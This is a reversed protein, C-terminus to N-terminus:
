HGMAMEPAPTPALEPAQGAQATRGPPQRRNGPRVVDVLIGDSYLFAREFPLSLGQPGRIAPMGDDNPEASRSPCAGEAILRVELRAHCKWIFYRGPKILRDPVGDRLVLGLQKSPVFLVEQSARDPVVRAWEWTHPSIAEQLSQPQLELRSFLSFRRHDGPELWEIVHGNRLLLGRENEPIKFSRFV